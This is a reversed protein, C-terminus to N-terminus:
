RSFQQQKVAAVGAAVLSAPVPPPQKGRIKRIAKWVRQDTSQRRQGLETYRFLRMVQANNRSYFAVISLWAFEAESASPYPLTHWDASSLIRFKQGNCANMARNWIVEDAETEPEDAYSMPMQAQRAQYARTLFSQADRMDVPHGPLALGSCTMHRADSYIEVHGYRIGSPISGKVIVHVGRGSPTVESYSQTADLIARFGAIDSASAPDTPKDDLDIFSIGYQKRLIFTVGGNTTGDLGLSQAAAVADAFSAGPAHVSVQTTGDLGFLPKTLKDGIQVYRWIGWSPIARLEAPLNQWTM